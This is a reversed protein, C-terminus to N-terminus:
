FGRMDDMDDDDDTRLTVHKGSSIRNKEKLRARLLVHQLVGIRIDMQKCERQLGEMSQKIRALPATM